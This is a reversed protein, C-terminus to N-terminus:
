LLFRSSDRATILAVFLHAYMYRKKAHGVIQELSYAAMLAKTNKLGDPNMKKYFEALEMKNVLKEKFQDEVRTKAERLQQELEKAHEGMVGDGEMAQKLQQELNEVTESLEDKGKFILEGEANVFDGKKRQEEKQQKTFADHCESHVKGGTEAHEFFRGDYVKGEYVGKILPGQYSNVPPIILL